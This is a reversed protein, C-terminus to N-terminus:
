CVKISLYSNNYKKLTNTSFIHKLENEFESSRSKLYNKRIKSNNNIEVLDFDKKFGCIWRAKFNKGSILISKNAPETILDTTYNLVFNKTKLFYKLLKTM